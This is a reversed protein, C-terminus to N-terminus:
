ARQLLNNWSNMSVLHCYIAALTGNPRLKAFEEDSLANLKAEDVIQFDALSLKEGNPLTANAQNSKLLGHSKLTECIKGTAVHQQQYATCFNLADETLKTKTGNEFFKREGDESIRGSKRDICLAFQSSDDNAVFVFPYRRVYAPIYHGGAWQKDKEVFLNQDKRVGVIAVAWVTEGGIFVIPYDRAALPFEAANLPIANTRAAFSFELDPKIGLGGHAEPTLVEPQQYFIPLAQAPDKSDAEATGGNEQAM